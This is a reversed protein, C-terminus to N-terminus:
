VINESVLLRQEDTLAYQVIDELSEALFLKSNSCIGFGTGCCGAEYMCYYYIGKNNKNSTKGICMLYSEEFKDLKNDSYLFMVKEIILETNQTQNGRIPLANNSVFLLSHNHIFTDGSEKRFRHEALFPEKLEERWVQEEVFKDKLINVLDM